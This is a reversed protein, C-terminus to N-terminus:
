AEGASRALPGLVEAYVDISGSLADGRDQLEDLMPAIGDGPCVVFHDIIFKLTRGLQVEYRM